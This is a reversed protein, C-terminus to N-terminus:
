ERGGLVVEEEAVGSVLDLLVAGNPHLGEATARAFDASLRRYM